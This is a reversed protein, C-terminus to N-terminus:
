GQVFGTIVRDITHFTVARKSSFISGELGQYAAHEFNRVLETEHVSFLLTSEFTHRVLGQVVLDGLKKGLAQIDSNKGGVSSKNSVPAKSEITKTSRTKYRSCCNSM